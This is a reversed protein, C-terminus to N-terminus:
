TQNKENKVTMIEMEKLSDFTQKEINKNLITM